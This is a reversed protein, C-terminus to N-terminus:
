SALMSNVRARVKGTMDCMEERKKFNFDACEPCLKDYFVHLRRYPKHCIQVNSFM